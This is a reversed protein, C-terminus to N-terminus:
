FNPGVKSGGTDERVGEGVRIVVGLEDVPMKANVFQEAGMLWTLMVMSVNLGELTSNWGCHILFVGM